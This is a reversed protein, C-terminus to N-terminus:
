RGSFESEDQGEIGGEGIVRSVPGVSDNIIEVGESLASPLPILSMPYHIRPPSCNLQLIPYSTKEWDFLKRGFLFHGGSETRVAIPLDNGFPYVKIMQPAGGILNLESRKSAKNLLLHLAEIPEYDFNVSQVSEVRKRPPGHRSALVEDLTARYEDEYDGIFVLSRHRERWPHPMKMYRHHFEFTCGRPKFFGIEFRRHKWSWGAFLIKTSELQDEKEKTILDWSAVLSNLVRGITDTVETVDVARTRTRMFNNLTTGVQMFLPYAIQADGCFGLCCDGRELRFLKQAQDIPGCARLRSDSAVLLESTSRNKRVWAITITM